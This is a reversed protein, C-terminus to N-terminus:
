TFSWDSLIFYTYWMYMYVCMCHIFSCTNICMVIQTYIHAYIKICVSINVSHYALLHKIVSEGSWGKKPKGHWNTFFRGAISSVQMWNRPQSSGRSFSIAVWELIRAQLIRHVSSGPLSCDMPDCSNSMVKKEKELNFFFFVCCESFGFIYHKANDMTYISGVIDSKLSGCHCWHINSDPCPTFLLSM